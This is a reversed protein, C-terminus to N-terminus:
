AYRKRSVPLSACAFASSSLEPEYRPTREIVRMEKCADRKAEKYANQGVGQFRSDGRAFSRTLLRYM